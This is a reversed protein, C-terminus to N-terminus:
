TKVGHDQTLVLANRKFIMWISGRITVLLSGYFRFDVDLAYM